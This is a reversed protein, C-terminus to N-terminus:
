RSIVLYTSPLSGFSPIYVQELPTGLNIPFNLINPYSYHKLHKPIYKIWKWSNIKNVLGRLSIRTCLSVLTWHKPNPESVRSGWPDHPVLLDFWLPFWPFYPVARRFSLHSRTLSYIQRWLTGLPMVWISDSSPATAHTKWIVSVGKHQGKNFFKLTYNVSYIHNIGIVM